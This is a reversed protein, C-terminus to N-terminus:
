KRSIYGLIDCTPIFGFFEAREAELITRHGVTFVTAGGTIPITLQTHESNGGLIKPIRVNGRSMGGAPCERSM